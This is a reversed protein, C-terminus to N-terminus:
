GKSPVREGRGSPPVRKDPGGKPPVREDRGRFVMQHDMGSRRAYCAHGESNGNPSVTM